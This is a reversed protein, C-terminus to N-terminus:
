YHVIKLDVVFLSVRLFAQSTKKRSRKLINTLKFDDKCTSVRMAVIVAMGLQCLPCCTCLFDVQVVNQKSKSKTLM